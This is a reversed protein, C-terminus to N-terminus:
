RPLASGAGAAERQSTWDYQGKLPGRRIEVRGHM